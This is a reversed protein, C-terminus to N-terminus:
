SMIANHCQAMISNDAKLKMIGYHCLGVIGYNQPLKAFGRYVGTVAMAGLLLALVLNRCRALWALARVRNWVFWAAAVAVCVGLLALLADPPVLSSVDWSALATGAVLALFATIYKKISM